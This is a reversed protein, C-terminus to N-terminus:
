EQAKSRTFALSQADGAGMVAVCPYEAKLKNVLCAIENKPVFECLRRSRILKEIYFDDGKGERAAYTQTVAVYDAKDFAKAFRDALAITRSYTHPQFIVAVNGYREKLEEIRAEIEAPHHSYDSVLVYKETAEIIEGRRKVGRFARIGREIDKYCLGCEFATVAAAAANAINFKGYAAINYSGMFLDRYFLDFWGTGYKRIVYDNDSDFGYSTGKGLYLKKCHPDDGNYVITKARNGFCDFANEVDNIDKYTDPHDFDINTIVAVDPNLRLFGRRYECAETIFYKKDGIFDNSYEGGIHVTPKYFSFIEGLMAATTTKGHCGAVAVVTEYRDAVYSLFDAREMVPVGIRRAYVLEENDEPVAGSYVVLDKNLINDKNHGDLACDSGSVTDGESEAIASLVRMSVGNCGIFHIKMICKYSRKSAFTVFM